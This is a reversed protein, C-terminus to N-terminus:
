EATSPDTGGREVDDADVDTAPGSPTAGGEASWDQGETDDKAPDSVADPEHSPETPTM